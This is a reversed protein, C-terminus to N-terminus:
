DTSWHSYWIVTPRSQSHSWSQRSHKSCCLSQKAETVTDYWLPGQSPILGPSDPILKAAQSLMTVTEPRTFVTVLEPNTPAETVTDYWLPGQSPILGPSGPINPVAYHSNQKLSHIMDRHAKVPFSVLVAHFSNRLKPSCLSQKPSTVVTVLEPNTPADTVPPCIYTWM